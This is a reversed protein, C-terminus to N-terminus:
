PLRPAHAEDSVALMRKPLPVGLRRLIDARPASVQTSPGMTKGHLRDRVGKCQDLTHRMTRWTQQCRSEAARALLLALVCLKVPALIRRSRGQSLPRTQLGPPPMRRFGGDIRTMSRSGLAGDAAALTADNPPVVCQGDDTADAAVQTTDLSLRGRAELRLYRGFRRSAMLECAKKPHDAQRVDLAALAARGVELLRARHAQERAAEDPNHCVGYRRRREGEGVAGEKGRLPPAVERSRGPRTRVDLAGETVTRMPVARSYRGLARSLRQRKAESFRGSDGVFGCRNFRWGRWDDKRHSSPTVEATPGPLVWSRVPWGERTLALGVVGQPPHARGETNHGRKRLAALMRPQWPESDEDEDASEGDRTTTDWFLLAVAANCLAATRFCLAHELAEIPGWLCDLARYLHELVWAHAEPWSVDDALWPAYCAWQSGPRARREVTRALVAM